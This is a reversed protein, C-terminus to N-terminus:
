VIRGYMIFIIVYHTIHHVTQDFGLSWWFYKNSKMARDLVGQVQDRNDYDRNWEFVAIIDSLKGYTEPSIAKFRGLLKSSAKVRDMSFHVAFDLGSLGMALMLDSTYIWVILLTFWAHVASHAALPVVWDKDKFKGLMYQTQMPYDALFHKIQYIILLTLMETM